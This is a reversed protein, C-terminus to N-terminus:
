HLKDTVALLFVFKKNVWDYIDNTVHCCYPVSPITCQSHPLITSLFAFLFVHSHTNEGYCFNMKYTLSCAYM